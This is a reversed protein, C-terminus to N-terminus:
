KTLWNFFKDISNLKWETWHIAENKFREAKLMFAIPKIINLRKELRKTEWALYAECGAKILTKM